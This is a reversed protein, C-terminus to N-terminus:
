VAVKQGKCKVRYTSVEFARVHLAAEPSVADGVGEELLNCPVLAEIPLDSLLHYVTDAKKSEYLRIVLDGSGDDTLKVTDVLM